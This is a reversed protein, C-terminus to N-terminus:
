ANPLPPLGSTDKLPNGPTVIWWLQDLKLRRIATETVLQHGEHPPNFSGGFLGVVMGPEVHPMRLYKRAVGPYLEAPETM